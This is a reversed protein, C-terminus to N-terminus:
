PTKLAVRRIPAAPPDWGGGLALYARVAARAAGARAQVLQDSATLLNRDAERVEILSVAGGEYAAQAERRATMLFDVQRSLAAAQAEDQVLSTFADEVEETARYVTSRYAALAEADAGKAQEVEADVRGFDFLRWRLGAALQNQVAEGTLLQGSVLSEFGLLGAISVKPYYDSVAAGIRANAAILRGEAALVDPRRRILEAPGDGASLPPPAPLMGDAALEARYTGAQAGMLVDLRNLEADLGATLPPIVARVGELEARAQSLERDAAVGQAQRQQVLAVLDQQSAEQRRAVALRAQYARVQLYADAAEAAVATRVAAAQAESSRADANAAERARRLGGFLDIEWSAGLGADYLDYDREFGPLHSGLEGFPSLLSVEGAAASTQLSGQPALAAGAARAAARSQRVRAAAQAVDLNQAMAREVVTTLAPDGFGRWWADLPAAPAAEAPPQGHFAPTLAVEPRRYDPGVTCAALALLSAAVVLYRLPTM